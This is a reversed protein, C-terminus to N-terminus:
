DRLFCRVVLGVLETGGGESGGGGLVTGGGAVGVACGIGKFLSAGVTRGPARVYLRYALHMVAVPWIKVSWVPRKGTLLVDPFM